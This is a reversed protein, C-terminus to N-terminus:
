KKSIKNNFCNAVEMINKATKESLEEAKINSDNLSIFPNQIEFMLIKKSMFKNLLDKTLDIYNYSQTVSSVQETNKFTIITKTSDEFLFGIKINEGLVIRKSFGQHGNGACISVFELKLKNDDKIFSFGVEKSVHYYFYCYTTKINSTDNFITSKKQKTFYKDCEDKTQSFAIISYLILIFIFIIKKM